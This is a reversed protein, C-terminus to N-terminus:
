AKAYEPLGARPRRFGWNTGFKEADLTELLVRLAQGGCLLDRGVRLPATREGFSEGVVAPHEGFGIAGDLFDEVHGIEGDSAHIHYGTVAGVSRLHM